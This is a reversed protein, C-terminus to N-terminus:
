VPLWGSAGDPHTPQPATIRQGRILTLRIRVLLTDPGDPLVETHGVACVTWGTRQALDLDDAEFGVVANHANALKSRPDARILVSDDEVIFGVPEVSPLAQDTLVVRGIPSGALLRLCEARPISEFEECDFM